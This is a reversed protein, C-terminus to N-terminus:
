YCIYVVSIYFIDFSQGYRHCDILCLVAFTIFSAELSVFLSIFYIFLDHYFFVPIFVLISCILCGPCLWGLFPRGIKSCIPNLFCLVIQFSFCMDVSGLFARYVVKSDQCQTDNVKSRRFQTQIEGVFVVRLYQVDSIGGKRICLGRGCQQLSYTIRKSLPLCAKTSMSIMCREKWQSPNGM